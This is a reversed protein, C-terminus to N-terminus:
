WKAEREGAGRGDWVRRGAREERHSKTDVYARAGVRACRHRQVDV